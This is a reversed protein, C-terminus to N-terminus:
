KNRTASAFVAREADLRMKKIAALIREENKTCELHKIAAPVEAWSFAKVDIGLWSMATVIGRVMRDDTVAVARLRRGAEAAKKRQLSDFEVVSGVTAMYKTIKRDKLAAIYAAFAEDSIRGPTVFTVLLDDITAMQLSAIRM